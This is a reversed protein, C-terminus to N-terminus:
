PLRRLCWANGSFCSGFDLFIELDPLLAVLEKRASCQHSKAGAADRNKKTRKEGAGICQSIKQNAPRMGHRYEAPDKGHEKAGGSRDNRDPQDNLVRGFGATAADRMELRDKM